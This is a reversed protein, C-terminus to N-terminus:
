LGPPLFRQEESQDSSPDESSQEPAHRVRDQTHLKSRSVKVIRQRQRELVGSPRM